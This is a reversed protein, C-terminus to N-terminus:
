SIQNFMILLGMVFTQDVGAEVVLNLVDNGLMIDSKAKKRKIQEKPVSYQACHGKWKTFVSRLKEVEDVFVNATTKNSFGSYEVLTFKSKNSEVPDGRFAEWRKGFDLSSPYNSQLRSAAPCKDSVVFLYGCVVNWFNNGPLRKRIRANAHEFKEGHFKGEGLVCAPCVDFKFLERHSQETISFKASVRFCAHSM